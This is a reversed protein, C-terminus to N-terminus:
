NGQFEEYVPFALIFTTGENPRSKVEVTAGHEELISKVSSLGIGMGEPKQTYFSEFLRDLQEKEMGCGNDTISLLFFGKSKKISISLIGENPIMAESANVIINLLAIRLKEEDANIYYHKKYKKIVKIGTLYIRDQAMELAKNTIQALCCKELVAPSYNSSTLLDTVLKNLTTASRKIINVYNELNEATTNQLRKELIDASMGISALPNRLEHALTRAVEGKISLKEANILAQQTLKQEQVNRLMVIYEYVKGNKNRQFVKGRANYYNWTKEKGRLRFEIEVIDKDSAKMLKEHFEFAKQRDQPHILPIIDLLDMGEIRDTTMGPDSTFDRNMYRVKEDYLNFIMIIDPSTQILQKKFRINEKLNQARLKRRTINELSNVLLGKQRRTSIKFWNSRGNREFCVEFDRSEGTLMTQKFIEFAGTQTAQPNLKLFSKGVMQNVKYYRTVKKNVRVYTFDIIDYNEGFLPQLLFIGQSVSNFVMQLLDHNEKLQATRLQVKNELEENAQKLQKEAEKRETIDSCLIAVKRSQKNGIPFAYVDFYTHLDKAFSEFRVAEGTLVVKGYTDFWFKEHDHSFEKMTKGLPDALRVHRQFAPNIEVFLYDIPNNELDFIMEIISYGEYLSNVLVRYKSLSEQLNKETEINEATGKKSGNRKSEYTRGLMLVHPEEGEFGAFLRVQFEFKKWYGFPSRVRIRIMNEEEPKLSASSLVLHSFLSFDEPHIIHEFFSLRDEPDKLFTKFYQSSKFNVAKLELDETSSIFLLFEQNELGNNGNFLSHSIGLLQDDLIFNGKKM